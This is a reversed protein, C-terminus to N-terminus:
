DLVNGRVGFVIENPPILLPLGNLFHPFCEFLQRLM